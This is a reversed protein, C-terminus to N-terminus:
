IQNFLQWHPTGFDGPAFPLTPALPRRRGDVVSTEVEDCCTFQQARTREARPGAAFTLVNAVFAAGHPKQARNQHCPPRSASALGRAPERLHPESSRRRDPM